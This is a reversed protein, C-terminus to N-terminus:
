SIRPDLEGSAYRLAMAELGIVNIKSAQGACGFAEYRAVCIETMPKQDGRKYDTIFDINGTLDKVMKKVFHDKDSVAKLVGLDHFNRMLNKGWYGCGILGINVRKKITQENVRVKIM